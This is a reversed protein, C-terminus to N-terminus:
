RAGARAEVATTLALLLDARLGPGDTPILDLLVDPGSDASAPSRSDPGPEARLAVLQGGCQLWYGFWIEPRSDQEPRPHASITIRVAAELPGTLRDLLPPVAALGASGLLIRLVERALPVQDSGISDQRRLLDLVALGEPWNMRVPEMQERLGPSTPNVGFAPLLREIAALIEDPTFVALEVGLADEATGAGTIRQLRSLGVGAEIGVALDAVVARDGAWSRVDVRLGAGAFAELAARMSPHVRDTPAAPAAPVLLGGARLRATAEARALTIRDADATQDWTPTFRAPLRVDGLLERLRILADVDLVLTSVM